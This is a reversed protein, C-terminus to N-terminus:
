EAASLSAPEGANEAACACGEGCSGNMVSVELTIGQFAIQERVMGLFHLVTEDPATACELELRLAKDALHPYAEAMEGDLAFSVYANLKEQLQFLQLESGNWPRPEVMVLTVRDTERDHQLLDIVGPNEV